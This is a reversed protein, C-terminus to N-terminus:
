EKETLKDYEIKRHLIMKGNINLIQKGDLVDRVAQRVGDWTFDDILLLGNHVLLPMSLEIDKRVDQYEHSGDVLVLRFSKGEAAMKKLADESRGVYSIHETTLNLEKEVTRLNSDFKDYLFGKPKDKLYEKHKDENSGEFTDICYVDDAQVLASASLGQWSGIELLPADSFAKSLIASIYLYRLEYDTMWGEIRGLYSKYM